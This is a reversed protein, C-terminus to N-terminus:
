VVGDLCPFYDIADVVLGERVYAPDIDGLIMFVQRYAAMCGMNFGYQEARNNIDYAMCENPYKAEIHELCGENSPADKDSGSEYWVLAEYKAIMETIHRHVVNMEDQTLTDPYKDPYSVDHGFKTNMM